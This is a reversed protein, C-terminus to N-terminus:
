RRAEYDALVDSMLALAADIKVRDAIPDAEFHALLASHLQLKFSPEDRQLAAGIIANVVRDPLHSSLDFGVKIGISLATAFHQDRLTQPKWDMILGPGGARSM